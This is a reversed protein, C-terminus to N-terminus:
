QVSTKLHALQPSVRKTLKDWGLSALELVIMMSKGSPKRATVDSYPSVNKQSAQLRGAVALKFYLIGVDSVDFPLAVYYTVEAM